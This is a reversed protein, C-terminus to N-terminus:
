GFLGATAAVGLALLAVGWGGFIAALHSDTYNVARGRREGVRRHYDGAGRYNMAILVAQLLLILGAAIFLEPVHVGAVAFVWPAILLGLGMWRMTAHFSNSRVSHTDANL